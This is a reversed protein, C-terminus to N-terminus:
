RRASVALLAGSETGVVLLDPRGPRQAIATVPRGVGAVCVSRNPLDVTAIQGTTMTVALTRDDLAVLDDLVGPVPRTVDAAVSVAGPDGIPVRLIRGTLSMTLTVYLNAGLVVIGNTSTGNVTPSLALNKPARRSWSTDIVGRRDIRLVGLNGDAVYLFGADDFDMGNPMGLGTAFVEAAPRPRSPDLRVITGLRPSGPIMNLTTDGSAIYLLGDPGTRIAGPAVVHVAATRHGAPDFREVTNDLVRSVWLNGRDDFTLNEAWGTLSPSEAATTVSVAPCRPAATAQAGVSLPVIGAVVAVVVAVVRIRGATIM